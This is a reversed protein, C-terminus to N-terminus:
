ARGGRVRRTRVGARPNPPLKGITHRRINEEAQKLFRARVSVFRAIEPREAFRYQGWLPVDRSGAFVAEYLRKAEAQITAPTIDMVFAPRLDAAGTAIAAFASEQSGGLM